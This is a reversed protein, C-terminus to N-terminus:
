AARRVRGSQRGLIRSYYPDELAFAHRARLAVRTQEPLDSNKLASCLMLFKSHTIRNPQSPNQAELFKHVASFQAKSTSLSIHFDLVGQCWRNGSKGLLAKFKGLHRSGLMRPFIGGILRSLHEEAVWVSVCSEVIRMLEDSSGYKSLIWLKAYLEWETKQDLFGSIEDIYQQTRRDAPLRASVLADAVAV